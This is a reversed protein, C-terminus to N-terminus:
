FSVNLGVAITKTGLTQVVSGATEPDFDKIKKDGRFTFLNDGTIYIKLDSLYLKSAFNEPVKYGLTFSKLRFYSANFVSYESFARNYATHPSSADYIRPYVAQSNPNSESWRKMHFRRPNDQGHFFPHMQYVEFAVDVGSVGQGFVSLEFGKYEFGISLGYTIDPVDNGIIVRDENTIAEKYNLNDRQPVFKIDGANPVTSGYTYYQGADIEEQTYLGDTKFGYISGIAEGERLIFKGVGHGSMNQIIDDSTSLDLIKNNNIAMNGGITYTLEGITNRHNLSLEFGKNRVEAINQSPVISIGTEAPVNYGLLIDSTNKIYYEASGSLLRGYLNFDLGINTMTVKEWSLNPNAPKSEVIGKVPVDSFNYDSNAAYNQFYDYYGVNNINGLTGYSARIKLNTLWDSTESMFNEESIRWAAAFSPFYGWRNADYFRSSADARFNAEFLYRDLYSYKLRAFYSLMKNENSSSSNKYNAGATSGASMDTFSDAPFDQRSAGLSQYQFHEYSVGLLGGFSHIDNNWDYNATGTFNLWSNSGWNMNMSNVTNGVQIETGPNLFSPVNDKLANYSKAKNEMRKYVGQGRVVLGQLPKIDVGLEYMTNEVMNKSWNNFSLARLPNGGVFTGSAPHGGDVSGWDGNSQKAVFTSPVILTNNLSPTGGTVDHNNQIYKVGGNITMWDTVDSTLNVNFSYRESKRGPMNDTDSLYSLSTFYRIKESGGSFNLSHQMTPAYDDYILDYWDTNPYLDPKSGDKFWGIEEDSYGQNKGKAPNTNYQAENFLEAYEWSNVLQPKFTLSKAGFIANYSVQTKGSKGQKTTVLVVGYAARAGYIASSAADKLFSISEISHPDLNSFFSADAIAGDIVYLPESAGLNGRGRFNISPTQGPRNIITVGPSTGQIAAIVNPQARDKIDDVNLSVVSGTLNVKKQTGYGVVVVEDLAAVDEKLTINIQSRGDVKVETKVFGVFSVVLTANESVTISYNGDFDSAAGSSTGKELITAGPVPYGTDEETITGKVEIRKQAYASGISLALLLFFLLKRM